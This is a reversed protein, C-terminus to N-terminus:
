HYYADVCTLGQYRLVLLVKIHTKYLLADLKSLDSVYNPRKSTNQDSIVCVFVCVCM